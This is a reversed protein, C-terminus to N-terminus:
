KTFTSVINTPQDFFSCFQTLTIQSHSVGITKLCFVLANYVDICYSISKLNVVVPKNLKSLSSWISM